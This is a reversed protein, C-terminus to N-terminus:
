ELRLRIRDLVAVEPDTGEISGGGGDRPGPRLPASDLARADPKRALLANCRTGLCAGTYRLIGGKVSVHPVPNKRQEPSTRGERDGPRPQTGDHFDLATRRSAHRPIM